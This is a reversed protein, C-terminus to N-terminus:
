PLHLRILRPPPGPVVVFLNDYDNEGINVQDTLGLAKILDPITNGHGVVLVNGSAAMLQEAFSPASAGSSPVVTTKVGIAQALPAATQQTRKFETAYIATINADKLVKGLTVARARGAESLDPDKGTSDAKEAHRTIFITPQAAANVLCVTVLIFAFFAGKSTVKM